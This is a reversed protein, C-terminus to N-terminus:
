LLYGESSIREPGCQWLQPNLFTGEIVACVTFKIDTPTQQVTSIFSQWHM